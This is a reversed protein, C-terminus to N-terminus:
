SRSGHGENESIGYHKMIDTRLDDLLIEVERIPYTIGSGRLRATLCIRPKGLDWENHPIHDVITLTAEMPIGRYEFDYRNVVRGM